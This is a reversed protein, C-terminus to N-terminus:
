TLFLLYIIVLFSIARVVELAIALKKKGDLWFGLGALSALIFIMYITKNLNAMKEVGLLFLISIILTIVFQSLAYVIMSKSSRHRSPYEKDMSPHNYMLKPSGIAMLIKNKIGSTQAIATFLSRWPEIHSEIPNWTVDPITIGYSPTEEEKQFTGFMKDWIIFVGAHNKDIYKPNKGHHVRHHSPTNFILGFWGMKDILETHIWFQYLTVFALVTFYFFTEVGILAMPLYFVATCIVQFAGQRLAVSLNYKESQHHVVHGLWLINIEHSKRHAWYYLFDAGIFVAIWTWVNQPIEFLRLNEYVYQYALLGVLGFFIGLVQDLIGCSINNLTDEASIKNKKFLLIGFEIFIFLFFFPIAYVIPSLEM